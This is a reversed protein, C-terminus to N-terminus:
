ILIDEVFSLASIGDDELKSGGHMVPGELLKSLAAVLSVTGTRPLGAAIVQIGPGSDTPILPAAAM